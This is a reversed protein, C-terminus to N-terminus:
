RARVIVQSGDALHAVAIPPVPIVKRMTIMHPPRIALGRKIGSLGSPFPILGLANMANYYQAATVAANRDVGIQSMIPTPDPALAVGVTNSMIWNWGDGTQISQSSAANAAAILANVYSVKNAFPFKGVMWVPAPAAPAAVTFSGSANGQSSTMSVTVPGPTTSAPVSVQYVSGSGTSVVQSGNISFIPATVGASLNVTIIGPLVLSSPSIAMTIPPTAPAATTTPPPTSTTALPTTTTAPTTSPLAGTLNALSLNALSLGGGQGQWWQWLVYAGGIGIVWKITSDSM